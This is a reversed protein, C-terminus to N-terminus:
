LYRAPTLVATTRGAAVAAGERAAARGRWGSSALRSRLDDHATSIRRVQPAGHATLEVALQEFATISAAELQASLAFWTGISDTADPAVPVTKTVVPLTQCLVAMDGALNATAAQEIAAIWEM